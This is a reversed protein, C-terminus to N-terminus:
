QRPRGEQFRMVSGIRRCNCCRGKDTQRLFEWGEISYATNCERCVYLSSGKQLSKRTVPCVLATDSGLAAAQPPNLTRFEIRPDDPEEATPRDELPLDRSIIGLKSLLAILRYWM